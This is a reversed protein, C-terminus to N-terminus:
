RSRGNALRPIIGEYPSSKKGALQSCQRPRSCVRKSIVWCCPDAWHAADNAEVQFVWFEVALEPFHESRHEDFHCAPSGVRGPDGNVPVLHSLSQDLERESM